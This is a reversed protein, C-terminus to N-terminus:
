KDCHVKYGNFIQGDLFGGCMHIKTDYIGKAYGGVYLITMATFLGFIFLLVKVIDKM